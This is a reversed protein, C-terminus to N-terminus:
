RGANLSDGSITNDKLIFSLANDEGLYKSDELLKILVDPLSKISVIETHSELKQSITFNCTSLNLNAVYSDKKNRIFFHIFNHKEIGEVYVDVKWDELDFKIMFDVDAMVVSTKVINQCGLNLLSQTIKDCFINKNSRNVARKKTIM